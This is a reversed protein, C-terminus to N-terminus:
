EDFEDYMSPQIKDFSESFQDHYLEFSEEIKGDENQFKASLRDILEKVQQVNETLPGNRMMTEVPQKTEEVISKLEKNLPRSPRIQLM